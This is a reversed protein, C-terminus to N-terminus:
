FHNISVNENFEINRDDLVGSLIINDFYKNLVEINDFIKQLNSNDLNEINDLALLKLSTNQKKYITAMLAILIIVSEGLSTHKFPIKRNNDSIKIIGFDVNKKNGEVYFKYDFKLENFIYNMDDVFPKIGSNVLDSKITKLEKEIKKYADLNNEKIKRNKENQELILLNQRVKNDDKQKEELQKLQAKKASLVQEKLLTNQIPKSYKLANEIGKYEEKAKKTNEIKVSIDMFEKNLTSLRKQNEQIAKRNENDKEVLDKREEKYKNIKAQLAKYKAALEQRCKRITKIENLLDNM